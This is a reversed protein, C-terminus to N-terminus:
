ANFQKECLAYEGKSCSDDNTGFGYGPVIEGCDQNSGYNNPQDRAWLIASPVAREGNM